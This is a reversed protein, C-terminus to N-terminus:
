MKIIDKVKFEKDKIAKRIDAIKFDYGGYECLFNCLYKYTTRSYDLGFGIEISNRREVKDKGLTVQGKYDIKAIITNYSQFFVGKATRIVFQNAVSKGSRFSTFNKIM